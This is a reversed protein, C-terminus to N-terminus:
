VKNGLYPHEQERPVETGLGPGRKVIGPDEEAFGTRQFDQTCRCSAVLPTTGNLCTLCTGGSPGM